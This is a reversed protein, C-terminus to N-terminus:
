PMPKDDKKDVKKPNRLHEDVKSLIDRHKDTMEVDQVMRGAVEGRRAAYFQGDEDQMYPTDPTDADEDGTDFDNAEEFTEMGQARMLQDWRESRLVDIVKDHISKQPTLQPSVAIPTPDPLEEGRENWKKRFIGFM